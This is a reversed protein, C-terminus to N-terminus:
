RKVAFKNNEIENKKVLPVRMNSLSEKDVPIM